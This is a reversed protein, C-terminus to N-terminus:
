TSAAPVQAPQQPPCSNIMPTNYGTDSDLMAGIGVSRAVWDGAGFTAAGSGAVMLVAIPLPLTRGKPLYGSWAAQVVRYRGPECAYAISVSAAGAGISASIPTL